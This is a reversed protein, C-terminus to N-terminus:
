KSNQAALLADVDDMGDDLFEYYSGDTGRARPVQWM